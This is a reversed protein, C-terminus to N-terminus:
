YDKHILITEDEEGGETLNNTQPKNPQQIYFSELYKRTERFQNNSLNNSLNELSSLMFQYSEILTVDNITFSTCREMNNPFAIIKGHRPKVASLILHADYGSFVIYCCIYCNYLFYRFFIIVSGENAPYSTCLLYSNFHSDYFYSNFHTEFVLM